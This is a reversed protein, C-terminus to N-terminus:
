AANTSPLSRPCTKEFEDLAMPKGFLYGQYHYCGLALLFERQEPQEVGEAIVTLGLSQALAVVMKAIAADNGDTLINRVFGQDIKLQDLPLRKLYSLSSYGTGFDDLSFGVGHAKLATMKVIIDEVDNVLLSETLELKLRQPNAGTKELAELVEQVFDAQRFQRASVNVSITLDAMVPQRSWAALQACATETVWRGLPLILGSEEALPIFEAPSVMGRQPHSWRVLVEAGTTHGSHSVQAQYHLLFQRQEIAERLDNELAARASVVAQMRPDFFRLTNRGAAKAEYMAMDARKLLDDVTDHHRSFLTIGISPTSHHTFGALQYPQNLTLLIKEGVTRAHEAAEEMQTSMDELMVVFEDGGLRATTDGERMCSLLRHAVQQLLMDGIQHGRNDNLNKFNDLDIFLLACCRASRASSAMAQQLRDILLRRNPLSTLPDYFALHNIESEAQKRQTIDSMTGVYHTVAGDADKVATIILSEPYIEGNKRQSWIEGQWTGTRGITEWMAEYFAGDHRGSHLLRPNQGVAEASSYGTIETFAKNVQLINAQADTILMGQHTEFATAAVRNKADMRKSELLHMVVASAAVILMTGSAAMLFFLWARDAQYRSLTELPRAIYVTMHHDQLAQSSLLRPVPNGGLLVAQQHGANGSWLSIPLVEFHGRKYQLLRSEPTMRLAAAEALAHADWDKEGALIVVGNADVLFAHHLNMWDALHNINRKVTVVGVFQGAQLVADSYYLGAKGSVSGVAYQQGRRGERAMRFYDRSAFNAGVFSDADQSNSAAICDGAANSIWIADAALDTALTALARSSEALAADKSWLTQRQKGSLESPKAGPGFQRLARHTMPDKAVVAPIGQLTRLSQQLNNAVHDIQQVALAAEKSYFDDGLRRYYNDAGVWAIAIWAMILAAVMKYSRRLSVLSPLELYTVVVTTLIILASATLVIVALFNPEIGANVVRDEDRVFYASLMAIYHMGSLALGLVGASTFTIWVSSKGRTAQLWSKVWLALFALAVAVVISLAFLRADYLILGNIRMAAMGTYHMTGVGAGILLGASAMQRVSLAPRSITKVALISAVIGPLTSLLTLRTDYNTACPLSFALMGVFHMAWIGFGLCLGGVAIWSQRDLRGRSTAVHQSVQLAAYSACIAIMVSLAVLVPDYFGEFLLSSEPPNIFFHKFSLM